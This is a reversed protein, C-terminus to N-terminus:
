GMKYTLGHLIEAFYQRRQDDEKAHAKEHSHKM